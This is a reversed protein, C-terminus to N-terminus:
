SRCPSLVVPHNSDFFGDGNEKKREKKREKEFSVKDVADKELLQLPAAENNNKKKDGHNWKTKKKKDNDKEEEDGERKNNNNNNNHNKENNSNDSVKRQLYLQEQELPNELTSSLRRAFSYSLSHFTLTLSPPSFFLFCTSINSINSHKPASFDCSM